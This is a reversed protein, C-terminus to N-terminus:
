RLRLHFEGPSREISFMRLVPTLQQRYQQPVRVTVPIDPPAHVAWSGEGAIQLPGRLTRVSARVTAGDSIVRLEYDGPPASPMAGLGAARWQLAIEGEWGGRHISLEGVRFLVHGRPELAAFRPMGLGLIQAAFEAEADAVSTRLPSISMQIQRASADLTIGFTLQGRLLYKPLFRWALGTSFAAQGVSDRYELQGAGNWLTGKSEVLRVRDGSAHKLTANFLHAPAMAVLGTLYVVLALIYAGPRLAPKDARSIFLGRDM